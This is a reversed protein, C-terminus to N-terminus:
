ERTVLNFQVNMQNGGHKIEMMKLAKDMAIGSLVAVQTFGSGTFGTFTIDSPPNGVSINVQALTESLVIFTIAIFFTFLKRM